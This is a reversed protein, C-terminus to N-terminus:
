KHFGGMMKEMIVGFMGGTVGTLLLGKWKMGSAMALYMTTFMGGYYSNLIDSRRRTKDVMCEFLQFFAGFIAFGRATGKIKKFDM